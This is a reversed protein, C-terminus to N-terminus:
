GRGYNVEKRWFYWFGLLLAVLAWGVAFLWLHSSVFSAHCYASGYQSLPHHQPLDKKVQTLAKGWAAPSVGAPRPTGAWAACNAANPAKAGFASARQNALLANRVLTIFIAAPNLQLLTTVWAHNQSHQAVFVQVSYIVGSVYLWTRMLFPLLQAFDNIRAGTRAAFLALGANFITLLALAPLVLLWDWTVPEGTIPILSFLVVMSLALQQLEIMVYALPLSARPFQLARILPLSDTIVKSTSIFTRQTFSFVFVGTVLFALYDPVGRSVGTIILGFILFYVGANLLPALIQWLQGLKAETYMAVNRATAFGMIFSWRRALERLYIGISPRQASPRLGYQAALAALSGDPQVAGSESGEGTATATAGGLVQGPSAAKTSRM